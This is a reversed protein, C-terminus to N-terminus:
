SVLLYDELSVFGIIWGQQTKRCLQTTKKLQGQDTLSHESSACNVQMYAFALEQYAQNWKSARKM